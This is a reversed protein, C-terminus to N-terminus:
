GRLPLARPLRLLLPQHPPLSQHRTTTPPPTATNTCAALWSYAFSVPTGSQEAQLSITPNDTYINLTYPGPNTTPMMLGVVSFTVAQGNLGSYQPTFSVRRETASVSECRETSVGTIAFGTTPTTPTTPPTTTIPPPTTTPPPTATNTCAALWSYAFSVPTGSQEAQLSITPNDTYINLTYPGPNTTPMMLGVVSFTVAQGNLGSYQPTFSVRRETASVSECRETSVGTIAFGTTPTTPTTPPTNPATITLVFSTTAQLTGPDTATLTITSQGATTPTGSLTSGSFSLGAPLSSMAYTLPQGEPDTFTGQPIVLSFAQGATASQASIAQAVVPAQNATEVADAILVNDFSFARMGRTNGLTPGDYYNSQADSFYAPLYRLTKASAPQKLSLVVRNGTASGGTISGSQGDLYFYDKLERSYLEATYVMQQGEDFVLTLTDKRTNYFVKKIDPSNIQDTDKSGYIDRAIQRFQEFALQQNKEGSYHVGDAGLPTGVTAITEVNNFLYKTRRQEDRVAAAQDHTEPLINIQGVYIRADGYDERFQSYLMAFKEGYDKGTTRAGGADAEGQKWIIGKIQKAVGAWQARYLLRGYTTNLNAHNVPDRTALTTINAGGDAGNIVCTPIGYNELILRQLTLGIGGVNAYPQKAAYWSMDGPINTSNFPYMVNRMYKDDFNFSYYTDLDGGAVANSQGYLVYVDGCVIRNRTAVLTSDNDKYLFVKVSYEAPEAKIQPSFLFTTTTAAPSIAQDLIQSLKGERLIQISIKNWGASNVQGSIPV